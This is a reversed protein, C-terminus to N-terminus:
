FSEYLGYGRGPVGGRLLYDRWLRRLTTDAPLDAASGTWACGFINWVDLFKPDDTVFQLEYDAAFSRIGSGEPLGRCVPHLLWSDCVFRRLGFFDAARAYSDACDPHRLPGSSPIHVSLAPAGAYEVPEFQLRGLGFIRFEFFGWTWLAATSGWVGHRRGCELTKWLLDAFSDRFMEGSLGLARYRAEAADLSAILPLQRLTQSPVGCEESLAGLADLLARIDTKEGAACNDVAKEILEWAGPHGFAATMATSYAEVAAEPYPWRALIRKVNPAGM